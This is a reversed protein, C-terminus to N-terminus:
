INEGTKPEDPFRTTFLVHSKLEWEDFYSVTCTMYHNKKATCTWMDTTLATKGESMKTAVKPMIEDRLTKAEEAMHRSVTTRHPLVDAANVKGHMAGVEILTQALQMFGQGSVAGFSRLDTACM